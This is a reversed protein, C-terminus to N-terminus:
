LKVDDLPLLGEDVDPFEDEIPEWTALLEALRSQQKVPEIILRDGQKRLIVEDGPLELDRPIEVVQSDGSRLLRAHRETHM